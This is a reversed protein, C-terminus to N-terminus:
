LCFVVPDLRLLQRLPAGLLDAAQAHQNQGVLDILRADRVLDHWLECRPPLQVPAHPRM